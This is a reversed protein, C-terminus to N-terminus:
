LPLLAPRSRATVMHDLGSMYSILLEVNTFLFVSLLSPSLVQIPKIFLNRGSSFLVQDSDPGWAVAYVAHEATM